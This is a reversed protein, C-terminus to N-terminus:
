VNGNINLQYEINNENKNTKNITKILWKNAIIDILLHFRAFLVLLLSYFYPLLEFVFNPTSFYFKKEPFEYHNKYNTALAIYYDSDDGPIKGWFKLSENKESIMLEQLGIELRTKEEINLCVGNFKSILKFDRDLNNPDM